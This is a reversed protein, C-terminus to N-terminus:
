AQSYAERIKFADEIELHKYDKDTVREALLEKFEVDHVEHHLDPSYELAALNRRSGVAMKYGDYMPKWLDYYLKQPNYYSGNEVVTMASVLMLMDPMNGFDMVHDKKEDMFNCVAFIYVATDNENKPAWHSVIQEITVWGHKKIYNKLIIFAARYGHAMDIFECFRKDYQPERLGQWKDNTQVINLPNNNRIGRPKQKREKEM